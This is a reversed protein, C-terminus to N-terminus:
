KLIEVVIIVGSTGAAAANSNVSFPLGAYSVTSTVAPWGIYGQISQYGGLVSPDVSFLTGNWSLIDTWSGGQAGNAGFGASFVEYTNNIPLTLAGVAKSTAGQGGTAGSANNGGTGGGAGATAGSGNGGIGGNGARSAAGGAGGIGGATGSYTGGAGGTANYDGGSGVGGAGGSTGGTVGASGTVSMVDFTTTGGQTGSTTGGAGLAYSYSAGPTAYYKESYGPGGVGPKNNGSYGGTSGYVFVYLSKVNSPVTYTTGALLARFQYGNTSTGASGWTPATNGQSILAQGSTGYNTGSSGISIAGTATITLETVGDKQFAIAGSSDGTTSIGGTGTTIANILNAM